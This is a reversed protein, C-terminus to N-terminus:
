TFPLTLTLPFSLLSALAYIPGPIPWHLSRLFLIALTPPIVLTPVNFLLFRVGPSM